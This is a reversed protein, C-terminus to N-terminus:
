RRSAVISDQGNMYARVASPIEISGDARQYNEMVAVLTRGVALGSGNLTHVLEPKGQANRFRAQMRRAQFAECNSCSSIERYAGQGPLWVELDYTKASAFGIDATCLAMVRYPLELMQLITEAHRTLEELAEYSAEPRVIQVLEVKDFQHQRIMGRTDKGYSGAESRFCPTHATLRLPLATAPLIEDRVTNTLTIESTSILYLAGDTDDAQGGKRVAFMDAEFKPLQTTGVLTPANVIYPTYCETYGHQKTHTDLMLQALARHLRALDGRLMTFRAGSLKAATAFDLLGLAEGLDTHDRVPFDFTRPTGHRRVEVNDDASRGVPTSPHTVNPLELLFDRLKAQVGDLERELGKLEDGLGAVQQLLPAADGGSNKAVGVQRSLTNRRAQLEQTRTQINKREHELAEFRAGDLVVGRKALAATVGALDNRLANIDLM